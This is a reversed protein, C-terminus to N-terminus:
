QLLIFLNSSGRKINLMLSRRASVVARFVELNSIKKRNASQIIDGQQLGTSHALSGIELSSVLVGEGTSMDSFMAGQLRPHIKDGLKAALEETLTTSINLITNDRVIQMQISEGLRTLGYVNRLDSANAITKGNAWIVVDGSHLGSKAAVSSEQVTSILAGKVVDINLANSLEPTLDQVQIGLHGRKVEGFNVLQPKLQMFMNIPIAFNIGVSGGSPAIIATNIGVLEGRLNVLAGGSNGPNISADTQIFDEYGEIGLGSRGLGSVLGSTVTQRLGFPNGIAVVFYGVLLDDSNGLRIATLNDAKVRIIAIDTEKDKGVLEAQLQRGDKLAINIEDVNDIVHNNTVILGKEADFIVGSGLGQRKKIRERPTQETGEFFQRFFPDDFLPNYQRVRVNTVTSINVVAPSTNKLMPALSPLPQGDVSFPLAANASTWYIFFLLFSFIYRLM